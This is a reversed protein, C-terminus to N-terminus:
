VESKIGAYKILSLKILQSLQQSAATEAQKTTLRHALNCRELSLARLWKLVTCDM